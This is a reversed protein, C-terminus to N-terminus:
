GPGADTVHKHDRENRSGGTTGTSTGDYADKLHCKNCLSRQDASAYPNPLAFSGSEAGDDDLFTVSFDWRGANPASSAHARHCSVCSVQSTAGPGANSSPLMSADEFPVQPLYANAADGGLPDLTGNYLNYQTALTAGITQGSPHVLRTDQQHFEGHCNGCWASMGGRYASHYTADESGSFLSIGEADPADEIFAYFDQAVQGGGYLLRFEGNGHPDHCSTCGLRSAPFAGGPASTLIGDAALGYGPADLNHGAADGSIPSQAGGHADNLNDELLYLFNGGGREVHGLTPDNGGSADAFVAGLSSAHCGLCVDSPTSDVLLWPNGDPADPDVLAGDESNHMTHCGDCQAVGGDHFAACPSALMALLIATLTFPVTRKGVPMGGRLIASERTNPAM